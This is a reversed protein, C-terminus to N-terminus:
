VWAVAPKHGLVRLVPTYAGFIRVHLRRPSEFELSACWSEPLAEIEVRVFM